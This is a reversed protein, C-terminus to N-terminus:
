KIIQEAAKQRNESTLDCKRKHFPLIQLMIMEMYYPSLLSLSFELSKSRCGIGHRKTHGMYRQPEAASAMSGQSAGMGMVRGM